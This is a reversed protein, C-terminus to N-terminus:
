TPGTSRNARLSDDSMPASLQPVRSKFRVSRTPTGRGPPKTLANYSMQAACEVTDAPDRYEGGTRVKGARMGALADRGPPACEVRRFVKALDRGKKKVM